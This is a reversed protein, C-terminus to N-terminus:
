KEFKDLRELVYDFLEKCLKNNEAEVHIGIQRDGKTYDVDIVSFIKNFM